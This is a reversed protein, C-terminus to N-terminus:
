GLQGGMEAYFPSTDVIVGTRDKSTVIALVKAPTELVDYGVFRTSATTEVNSLEIVQLRGEHDMKGIEKQRNAFRDFEAKDVSFGRGRALLQTLDLPFGYTDSLVFAAEGTVCRQLALKRRHQRRQERRQEVTLNLEEPLIIAAELSGPRVQET